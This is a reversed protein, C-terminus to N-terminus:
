PAEQAAVRPRCGQIPKFLAQIALLDEEQNGTPVFPPWLRLLHHEFDFAVPFIPVGAGIAIQYFGSKWRSVGKRTGEPALALWLAPAAEIAAVCQGVMGHSSSRDVPIGGRKRLFNGFPTQFITHKGLWSVRLDVAFMVAMALLFDWNSTHPAVILVGKPATPFEGVVDWGSLRLYTRGIWRRLNSRPSQLAPPPAPYDKPM